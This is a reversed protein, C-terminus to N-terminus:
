AAAHGRRSRRIVIVGAVATLLLLAVLGVNSVAPIIDKIPIPPEFNGRWLGTPIFDSPLNDPYGSWAGTFFTPGGQGENLSYTDTGVDVVLEYQPHLDSCFIDVGLQDNGGFNLFWVWVSVPIQNWFFDAHWHWDNPWDPCVLHDWAHIPNGPGGTTIGGPFTTCIVVGDLTWDGPSWNVLQSSWVWDWVVHDAITIDWWLFEVVNWTGAETVVCLVHEVGAIDQTMGTLAGTSPDISLGAPLADTTIGGLVQGPPVVEFSLTDSTDVPETNVPTGRQIIHIETRHPISGDDVIIKWWLLAVTKGIVPDKVECLVHFVGAVTPTGTIAGTSSNISLGTPLDQTTMGDINLGAAVAAFDFPGIGLGLGVTDIPGTDGPINQEFLDITSFHPLHPMSVEYGFAVALMAVDLLSQDRRVGFPLNIQMLDNASAVPAAAPPVAVHSDDALRVREPGGVAGCDFIVGAACVGGPCCANFKDFWNTTGPLVGGEFGLAHCIEHKAVTRLDCLGAAGGVPLANWFADFEESQHPTMDFFWAAALPPGPPLASNFTITAAGPLGGGQTKSYTQGLLAAAPPIVDAPLCPGAGACCRCELDSQANALSITIVAGANGVMLNPVAPGANVAATLAAATVPATQAVVVAATGSDLLVGTQAERLELTVMGAAAAAGAVTIESTLNESWATAAKTTPALAAFRFTIPVVLPGGPTGVIIQEWWDAAANIAPQAESPVSSDFIRQITLQGQTGRTSLLLTLGCVLAPLCRITRKM